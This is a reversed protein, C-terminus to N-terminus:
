LDTDPDPGEGLPEAAALLRRARGEDADTVMIRRPLAGISGDLVSMHADFVVTDIGEEALIAQVFSLYVPNNSRLLEKM